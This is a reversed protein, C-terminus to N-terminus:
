NVVIISPSPLTADDYYQGGMNEKALKDLLKQNMTTGWYASNNIATSIETATTIVQGDVVQLYVHLTASSGPAIPEVYQIRVGDSNGPRYKIDVGATDNDPEVVPIATLGVEPLLATAGLALTNRLFQRREM